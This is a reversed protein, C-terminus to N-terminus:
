GRFLRWGYTTNYYVFIGASNDLEFIFDEAVGMIKEGNRNVTLNNSGFTGAGDLISVEDGIAPTAPLSVTFAGSETNAVIKDSPIASYNSTKETWPLVAQISVDGGSAKTLDKTWSSDISNFKVIDAM